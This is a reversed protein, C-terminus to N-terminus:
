KAVLWGVGRVNLIASKGFKGRLSHILFDVANSEIEEGWGYLREEIQARSLVRGPREMLALMLAYERATLVQSTEGRSLAHTEIDLELDGAILRAVTQGSRRRILARMRALLESVAFPKGLYDDAGLDLGAVRDSLEDRATIVIVPTTMGAARAAKLLTLGDIGPLTLDLLVVLYGAERMAAEADRGDRAWDVSFGEGALAKVLGEGIMEDDEILLARM